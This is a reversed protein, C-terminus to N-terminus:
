KNKKKQIERQVEAERWREKKRRKAGRLREMKKRDRKAGKLREM